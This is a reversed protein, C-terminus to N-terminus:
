IQTGTVGLGSSDRDCLEPGKLASGFPLHGPCKKSDRWGDWALQRGTHDMLEVFQHLEHPHLPNSITYIGM